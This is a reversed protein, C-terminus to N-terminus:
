RFFAKLQDWTTNDTSVFAGQFPEFLVTSSNEPDDTGDLILSRIEAADTTGWYNNSLDYTIEGLGPYFYSRITPGTGHFLHCNSITVGFANQFQFAAWSGGTFVSNTATFTCYPYVTVALNASIESDVVECSSDSSLVGIGINSCDFVHCSEVVCHTGNDVKIGTVTDRIESRRIACTGLNKVYIQCGIFNCGDIEVGSGSGLFYIGAPPGPITAEFECDSVRGGSGSSSWIVGLYNELFRCDQVLIPAGTAHIGDYCNRITVGSVRLATGELWVVGKPSFTDPSGSYVTPGIFTESEGAGIITLDAVRVFAFVDVDWSYGPIYSPASETYEGPGIQITDGSAAADLAPQITTFEGSGDREVTITAGIACLPVLLLVCMVSVYVEPHRIQM